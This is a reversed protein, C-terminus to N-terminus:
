LKSSQAQFITEVQKLHREIAETKDKMKLAVFKTIEGVLLSHFISALQAPKSKEAETLIETLRAEAIKTLQMNRRHLDDDFRSNLYFELFLIAYGPESLFFEINTKQNLKVKELPTLDSPIQALLSHGQSVIYEMLVGLQNKSPGLYKHVIGVSLGCAQAVERHNVSEFGKEAIIEFTRQFIVEKTQESKKQPIDKVLM